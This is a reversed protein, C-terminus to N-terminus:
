SGSGAAPRVEALPRLMGAAALTGVGGCILWLLEPSVAFLASGLGPGVAMASAWTLGYLGLARGRMSAPGLNAAYAMAVPMSLIEGATFVAMGLAYGTIQDAVSFLGAGLGILLFGLGIVRQPPKRQTFGSLPIEFVVVLLGNLGLILGYVTTSLGAARIELGLTTFMQMFVLATGFTALALQRFRADAWLVAVAQKLSAGAYLVRRVSTPASLVDRPLFWLAVMGYLASTVADGLFLWGYSHAALVGGVAPGLAFGANIAFRYAAYATVRRDAPVLAALLASSAPRYFEGCLGNLFALSILGELTRAQSLLLMTVAGCSMSAVITRRSGVTDALHGGLIAALLHGGGFAALVWGGAATSHGLTTVHLVLFPMVFTGFRNIFMGVLLCWVPRPFQRVTQWATPAAAPRMLPAIVTTTNM